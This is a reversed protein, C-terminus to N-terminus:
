VKESLQCPPRKANITRETWIRVWKCRRRTEAKTYKYRNMITSLKEYQMSCWWTCRSAMVLAPGYTIMMNNVPVPETMLIPPQAPALLPARRHGPIPSFLFCAVVLEWMKKIRVECWNILVVRSSYSVARHKLHWDWVFLVTVWVLFVLLFHIAILFLSLPRVKFIPTRIALLM